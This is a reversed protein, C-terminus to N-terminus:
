YSVQLSRELRLPANATCTNFGHSIITTQPHNGSKSVEVKVCPGSTTTTASFWFTTTAANSTRVTDDWALSLPASGGVINQSNCPLTLGAGTDGSATLSSTAFASGDSDGPVLTNFKLDWYLACEAGSDAAYIAYQSQKAVQSLALSRNLLDYIVLGVALALSAVLVAFFITFGRNYTARKMYNRNGNSYIKM